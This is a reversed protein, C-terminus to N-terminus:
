IPVYKVYCKIISHVLPAPCSLVSLLIFAMLTVIVSKRLLAYMHTHAYALIIRWLHYSCYFFPRVWLGFLHCIFLEQARIWTVYLIHILSFAGKDEHVCLVCLYSMGCYCNIVGQKCEHWRCSCCWRRHHSRSSPLFLRKTKERGRATRGDIFALSHHSVVLGLMYWM